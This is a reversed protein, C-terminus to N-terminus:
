PMDSVFSDGTGCTLGDRGLDIEINDEFPTQGLEFGIARADMDRQVFKTVEHIGSLGAVM